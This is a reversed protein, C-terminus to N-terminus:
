INYATISLSFTRKRIDYRWRIECLISVLYGNLFSPIFKHLDYM